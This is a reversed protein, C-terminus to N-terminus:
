PEEGEVEVTWGREAAWATAYALARERNTAYFTAAGDTAPREEPTPARGNDPVPTLRFTFAELHSM